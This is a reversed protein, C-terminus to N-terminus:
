APVARRTCATLAEPIATRASKLTCPWGPLSASESRSATPTASIPNTSSEADSIPEVGEECVGCAAPATTQSAAEAAAATARITTRM